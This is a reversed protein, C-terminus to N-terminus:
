VVVNGARPKVVTPKFGAFEEPTMQAFSMIIVRDGKKGYHAAAGNLVIQGPEELLIAYTVVRGGNEVNAVLVQEYPLIGSAELLERSIGISGEYNVDAGTLVGNHIKSKLVTLLM